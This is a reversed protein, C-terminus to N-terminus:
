KKEKMENKFPRGAKRKSTDVSLLEAESYVVTYKDLKKGQLRGQYRWNKLTMRTIKVGRHEELFKIADGASYFKEEEEVLDTM